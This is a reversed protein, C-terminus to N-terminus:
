FIDDVWLLHDPSFIHLVSNYLATLIKFGLICGVILKIMDVIQQGLISSMFTSICPFQMTGSLGPVPVTLPTCTDTTTLKQIFNLPMILLDQMTFDNDGFSRGGGNLYPFDLNESFQGDIIDEIQTKIDSSVSSSVDNGDVIPIISGGWEYLFPKYPKDQYYTVCNRYQTCTFKNKILYSNFSTTNFGTFTISNISSDGLYFTISSLSDTVTFNIKFYYIFPFYSLDNNGLDNSSGFSFSASSIIVSSHNSSYTSSELLYDNNYSDSDYYQSSYGYPIILYYNINPEFNYPITYSDSVLYVSGVVDYYSSVNPVPSSGGSSGNFSRSASTLNLTKPYSNTGEPNLYKWQRRISVSSLDINIDGETEWEYAFVNQRMFMVALAIGTGIIIRKIIYKIDRM